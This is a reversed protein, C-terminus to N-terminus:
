KNGTNYTCYDMAEEFSMGHKIKYHLTQYPVNFAQCVEGIGGTVGKYTYVKKPPGYSAPMTLAEELSMGTKLRSRVTGYNIKYFACHGRLTRKVGHVEYLKPTKIPITIAEGFTMDQKVMRDHITSYNLNYKRCITRLHGTEGKYTVTEM